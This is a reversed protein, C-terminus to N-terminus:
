DPLKDGTIVTLEKVPVGDSWKGMFRQQPTNGLAYERNKGYFAADCLADFLKWYAYYDLADISGKEPQVAPLEDTEREKRRRFRELFGRRGLRRRGKGGSREMKEGSDYREDLACPSFHNAVLPPEGHDDSHVIIYNKNGSPIQTAENFIKKADIDRVLRDKDGVVCLLMVGGPIKSYDEAPVAIRKSLSWTKGPQVCMVVKPTPLGSSAALAAINASLLGGVSHGVLAFKDLEPKVHGETELRELADKIAKIANATFERTPTLLSEQYRPYIVINGRRVIHDIWAGYVKPNMASWGHSFVVVPASKPTPDAPEYLWYQYNGEGFVSKKVANHRYEAGGVGTQPQPPPKPKEGQAAAGHATLLLLIVFFRFACSM